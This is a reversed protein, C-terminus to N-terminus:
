NGGGGGGSAFWEKTKKDIYDQVQTKCHQNDMFQAGMEAQTIPSLLPRGKSRCTEIWQVLASKNYCQGDSALCPETLLTHSIPCLMHAEAHDFLFDELSEYTAADATAPTEAKREQGKEEEEEEKGEEQEEQEEEQQEQQGEGKGKKKKKKRRRRRNENQEETQEQQQEKTKEEEKEGQVLAITADEIGGGGDGGGAAAADGDAAGAADTTTTAVLRKVVSVATAGVSVLTDIKSGWWLRSAEKAERERAAKEEREQANRVDRAAQEERERIARQRQELEQREQAIRQHETFKKVERELQERQERSAGNLWSSVVEAPSTDSRSRSSILTQEFGLLLLTEMTEIKETASVGRGAMCAHDFLRRGDNDQADLDLSVKMEDVLWQLASAKGHLCALQPLRDRRVDVRDADMLVKLMRFYGGLLMELIFGDCATQGGKLTKLRDFIFFVVETHGYMGALALPSKGEKTLLNVNAKKKMVLRQVVKLLGFECALHLLTAHGEEDQANVDEPQLHPLLYLAVEQERAYLAQRIPSYRYVKSPDTEGLIALQAPTVKQAAVGREQSLYRVIELHGCSAAISAMQRSLVRGKPSEWQASTMQMEQEAQQFIALDGLQAASILSSSSSPLAPPM